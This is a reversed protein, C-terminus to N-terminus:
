FMYSQQKEVTDLLDFINAGQDFYDSLDNVKESIKPTALFQVTGLPRLEEFLELANIQVKMGAEDNDLFFVIRDWGSFFSRVNNEKVVRIFNQSKLSAATDISAVHFDYEIGKRILENELRLGDGPGETIFLTRSFKTGCDRDDFEYPIWDHYNPVATWRPVSRVKTNGEKIATKWLMEATPTLRKKMDVLLRGNKAQFKDLVGFALATQETQVYKPFDLVMEHQSPGFSKGLGIPYPNNPEIWGRKSAFQFAESKTSNILRLHAGMTNASEVNFYHRKVEAERQPAKSFEASPVPTGADSLILEVARFVDVGNKPNLGAFHCRVDIVTGTAACGFCRYTNTDSNIMMSPTDDQHLWCFTLHKQTKQRFIDSAPVHRQVEQLIPTSSKIQQFDLKLNTAM